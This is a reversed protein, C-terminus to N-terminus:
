KFRSLLFDGVLNSMFIVFIAMMLHNFISLFASSEEEKAILYSIYALLLLGLVISLIIGINLPAFAIFLIFTLSIALRSLFNLITSVWVDRASICESEQFIHIGFSDAINDALAIVLISGIISFKANPGSHLGAMLGLNTIIASTSGFSFNTQYGRVKNTIKNLM